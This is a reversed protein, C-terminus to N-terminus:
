QLKMEPLSMLTTAGAQDVDLGEHRRSAYGGCELTDLDTGLDTPYLGRRGLGSSWLRLGHM